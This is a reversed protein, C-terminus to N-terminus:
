GTQEGPDTSPPAEAPFPLITRCPPLFSRTSPSIPVIPASSFRCNRPFPRSVLPFISPPHLYTRVEGDRSVHVGDCGDTHVCVYWRLSIKVEVVVSGHSWVSSSLSVLALMRPHLCAVMSSPVRVSANPPRLTVSTSHLALSAGQLAKVSPGSGIGEM